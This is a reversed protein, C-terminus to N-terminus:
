LLVLLYHHQSQVTKLEARKQVPDIEMPATEEGPNESEIEDRTGQMKVNPARTCVHGGGIPHFGTWHTSGDPRSM